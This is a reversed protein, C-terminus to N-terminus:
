SQSSLKHISIVLGPRFSRVTCTIGKLWRNFSYTFGVKGRELWKAQILVAIISIVVLLEILTFAKNRIM